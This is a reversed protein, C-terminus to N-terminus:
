VDPLPMAANFTFTITLDKGVILFADTFILIAFCGHLHCVNCTANCGREGEGYLFGFLDEDDSYGKFFLGLGLTTDLLTLPNSSGETFTSPM